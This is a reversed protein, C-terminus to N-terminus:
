KNIVQARNLHFFFFLPELKATTEADSPSWLLLCLVFHVRFKSTHEGISTSPACATHWASQAYGLACQCLSCSGQTGHGNRATGCYVHGGQGQKCLQQRPEHLPASNCYWNAKQGRGRSEDGRVNDWQASSPRSLDLDGKM